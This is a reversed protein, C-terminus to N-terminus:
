LSRVIERRKLEASYYLNKKDNEWEVPTVLMPPQSFFTLLINNGVKKQRKVAFGRFTVVRMQSVKLQTFTYYFVRLM